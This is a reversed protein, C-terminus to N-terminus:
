SLHYTITQNVIGNDNSNVTFAEGSLGASLTITGDTGITIIALTATGDEMVVALVRQATTPRIDAPAGTITHATSNSEGLLNPFELTVVNDNISYKISGTVSGVVGTLTGTFSGTTSTLSVSADLQTGTISLGTGLSLWTAQGASDDWFLIRDAGPDTLNQIGLMSASLTTGSLSLGTGVTLHALNSASDDWFIIRDAGPDSLLGLSSVYAPVGTIGAWAVSAVSASLTTGTISLGTGLELYVLDGASDDWFVLRDAGPDTLAAIDLITAPIDEIDTNWSVTPNINVGGGAVINAVDILRVADNPQVPTGLNILRHGGADFDVQMANPETGDLSLTNEIAAEIADNNANLKVISNYGSTIEQLTLKAM